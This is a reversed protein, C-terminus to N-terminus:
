ISGLVRASRMAAVRSRLSALDGAHKFEVPERLVCSELADLGAQRCEEFNTVGFTYPNSPFRATNKACLFSFDKSIAFYGVYSPASVGTAVVELSGAYPRARGLWPRDRGAASCERTQDATLAVAGISKTVTFAGSGDPGTFSTSGTIIAGGRIDDSFKRNFVTSLTLNSKEGNRTPIVGAPTNSPTTNITCTALQDAQRAELNVTAGNVISAFAAALTVFKFLM